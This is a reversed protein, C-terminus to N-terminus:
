PADGRVTRHALSMVIAQLLERVGQPNPLSSLARLAGLTSRSMISDTVTFGGAEDVLAHARARAEADRAERPLATLAELEARAEPQARCWAAVLPFGQGGRPFDLLGWAEQRLEVALGVGCGVRALRLRLAEDAGGLMAGCILSSALGARMMRLRTFAWARRVGGPALLDGGQEGCFLSASSVRALRLCYEGARVAGPVDAELMAEMARAFLHDGVVVSLHNGTHGYGLRAPLTRADGPTGPRRALVEDHVALSAHLLELGAAFRWVGAPVVTSGRALCHGALVLAPRMRTSPCLIHARVHTLAQAWGADLRVEDPLLLLDELVRDVQTRVLALWAQEVSPAALPLSSLFPTLGM